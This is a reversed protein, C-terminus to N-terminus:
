SGSARTLGSSRDLWSVRDVMLGRGDGVDVGGGGQGNAFIVIQCMM